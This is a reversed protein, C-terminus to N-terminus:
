TYRLLLPLLAATLAAATPAFSERAFALGSVHVGRRRLIVVWLLTALSGFVTFSPGVDIGVFLAGTVAPDLAAVHGAGRAVLLAVPLNNMLNAFLASGLGGIAVGLPAGSLRSLADAVIDVVRRRGHRRPGGAM